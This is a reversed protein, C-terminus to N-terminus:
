PEPALALLSAGPVEELLGRHTLVIELNTLSIRAHERAIGDARAGERAAIAEVLGLHQRHAV